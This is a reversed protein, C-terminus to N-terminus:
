APCDQLSLLNNRLTADPKTTLYRQDGNGGIIVEAERGNDSVYFTWEGNDIGRIAEASTERWRIGNHVGGIHTIQRSTGTSFARTICLVQRRIAM